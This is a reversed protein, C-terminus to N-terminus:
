RPAAPRHESVLAPLDADTDFVVVRHGRAHAHHHLHEAESPCFLVGDRTLGEVVVRLLRAVDGGAGIGSPLDRPRVRAVVGIRAAAYPLGREALMAPTFAVADIRADRWASAVAIPDRGDCVACDVTTSPPPDDPECAAARLARLAGRVRLARGDFAAGVLARACEVAARGVAAHAHEVVVVHRDADECAITVGHRVDDGALRQLEIAVHEVVHAASTGAVLQEVFGGPCGPPCAHDRLGPFASVLRVMLGPVDASTLADLSGASLDLRTVPRSSWVSRGPLTHIADARLEVRATSPASRLADRHAPM